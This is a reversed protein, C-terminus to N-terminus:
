RFYRVKLMLEPLTIKTWTYENTMVNYGTVMLDPAQHYTHYSSDTM